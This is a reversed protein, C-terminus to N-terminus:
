DSIYPNKYYAEDKIPSQHHFDLNNPNNFVIPVTKRAAPKTKKPNIGIKGIVEPSISCNKHFMSKSLAKLSPNKSIFFEKSIIVPSTNKIGLNEHM